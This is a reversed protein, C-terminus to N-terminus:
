NRWLSHRVESGVVFDAQNWHRAKSIFRMRVLRSFDVVAFVTNDELIIALFINIMRLLKPSTGPEIMREPTVFCRLRLAKLKDKNPGPCDRAIIELYDSLLMKIITGELGFNM